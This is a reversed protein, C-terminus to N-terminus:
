IPIICMLKRITHPGCVKLLESKGDALLTFSLGCGHALTGLYADGLRLGKAAFTRVRLDCSRPYAAPLTATHAQTACSGGPTGLSWAWPLPAPLPLPGSAEPAVCELAPAPEASRASPPSYQQHYVSLSIGRLRQRQGPTMQRLLAIVLMSM